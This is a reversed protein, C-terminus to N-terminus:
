PCMSQGRLSVCVSVCVDAFAGEWAVEQDPFKSGLM